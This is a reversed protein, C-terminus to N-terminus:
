DCECGECMVCKVEGCACEDTRTECRDCWSVCSCFTHDKHCGESICSSECESTDYKVFTGNEQLEYVDMGTEIKM